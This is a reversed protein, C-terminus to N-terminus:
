PRPAATASERLWVSFDLRVVDGLTRRHSAMGFASRSVESRAQLPCDIGPRECDAPILEFQVPQTIGRLTAYGQISGGEGLREPGLSESRFRIWPHRAVDFFEDSQAWTVLSARGMQVARADVRVDVTLMGNVPDRNMEGELVPFRGEIRKLWLPRVSFAIEARGDDVAWTQAPAPTATLCLMLLAAGCRM